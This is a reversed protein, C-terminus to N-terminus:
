LLVVLGIGLIAAAVAVKAIRSKKWDSKEAGSSIESSM